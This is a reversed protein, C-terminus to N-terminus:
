PTKLPCKCKQNVDNKFSAWLNIFVQVETFLTCTSERWSTLTSSMMTAWSQPKKSQSCTTGTQLYQKSLCILGSTFTLFPPIVELPSRKQGAMTEMYRLFMYHLTIGHDALGIHNKKEGDKNKHWWVSSEAKLLKGIEGMWGCSAPQKIYTAYCLM